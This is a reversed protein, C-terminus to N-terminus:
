LQAAHVASDTYNSGSALWSNLQSARFKVKRGVRHHPIRNQSAWRLLTVPHIGLLTAAQNANLLPEFTTM